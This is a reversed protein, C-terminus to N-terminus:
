DASREKQLFYDKLGEIQKDSLDPRLKKLIPDIEARLDPLVTPEDRMLEAGLGIVAQMAKVIGERGEQFEDITKTYETVNKNAHFVVKNRYKRIRDVHPKVGEWIEEIKGKKAPFLAYWVDFVDLASGSGTDMLSAFWGVLVNGIIESFREPGRGSLDRPEYKRKKIDTAIQCIDVLERERKRYILYEEMAEVRSLNRNRM